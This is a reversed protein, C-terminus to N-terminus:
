LTEVEKAWPRENRYWEVRHRMRDFTPIKQETSCGSIDLKQFTFGPLTQLKWLRYEKMCIAFADNLNDLGTVAHGPELLMESVRSGISGAAGTTLDNAM